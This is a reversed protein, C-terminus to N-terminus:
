EWNVIGVNAFEQLPFNFQRQPCPKGRFRMPDFPCSSANPVSSLIKLFFYLAADLSDGPPTSARAEPFQTTTNGWPLKVTLFGM